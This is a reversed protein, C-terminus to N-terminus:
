RVKAAPPTPSDDKHHFDLGFKPDFRTGTFKVPVEAGAGHRAFFPDVPKLLLAKIGTTTQSVHAQLRAHGHFDFRGGDLAYTGTLHVDAGPLEYEVPNFVFVKNAMTYQGRLNSAVVDAEVPNAQSAKGQSRMSLADVKNQTSQHAFTGNSIQFNGHLRLREVFTRPGPFQSVHGKIRIIGNMFSPETRSFLHLLDEVHGDPVNMDLEVIHGKPGEGEAREITGSATFSTHLLRARVQDLTVNSRTGDVTAHFDTHLPMAHEAIALSFNPTETTGEVAIAGLTGIFHGSSSLMGGLGKITSLDAHDFTYQGSVSTDRVTGLHIPGISGTSHIEGVPKPNTLVANYRLPQGSGSETLIVQSIDFELPPKPQGRKDVKDSEILLISDDMVYRDVRLQSNVNSGAPARFAGTFEQRHGHPPVDLRLHAIHVM